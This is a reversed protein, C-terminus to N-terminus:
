DAEVCVTSFDRMRQTEPGKDESRIAPFSCTAVDATERTVTLPIWWLTVKDWLFCQLDVATFLVKAFPVLIGVIQQLQKHINARLVMRRKVQHLLLLFPWVFFFFFFLVAASPLAARLGGAAESLESSFPLPLFAMWFSKLQTWPEKLNLLRYTLMNILIVTMRALTANCPIVATAALISGTLPFCQM